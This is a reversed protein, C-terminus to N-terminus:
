DALAAQYLEAVKAWNIIDFFAKIYNPRVNRYKLYYAHEWVDLALIPKKGESLPTDQNATSTVELKGDKNVVLWAWGSGFRTTAAQTFATKFDEFSGFAEEIAALVDATPEQKEPSLLEWFLSHNLAGGGNNIVAQRIDAPIKDLEALIVELDDGLEPHKELAANANAVYTAHHKDHHLTMTEADIYPELADYAYPLEPLIIAM